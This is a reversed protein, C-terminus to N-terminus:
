DEGMIQKIEPYLVRAAEKGDIQVYINFPKQQAQGAGAAVPTTMVSSLASLSAATQAAGTQKVSVAAEVIQKVKQVHDDSLQPAASIVKETSVMVESIAQLSTPDINTTSIEKAFDVIDKLPDGFIVNSLKGLINGATLVGMAVAIAGIAGAVMYLGPAAMALETLPASMMPLFQATLAIAGAFLMAAGAASLLFTGMVALGPGIVPLFKGIVAAVVAFIGMAIALDIMAGGTASIQEPSMEKFSNALLSMGASAIFIAGGIALIPLTLNRLALGVASILPPLPGIAGTFAAFTFALSAIFTVFGKIKGMVGLLGIFSLVATKNERLSIVFDKIYEAFLKLDPALEQLITAMYQQLDTLAKAREEAEKQQENYEKFALPDGFLREALGVDIKLMRAVAQKERRHLDDFNMGQQIFQDRLIGLRDDEHAAMMTVSNLGLGLQANLLGVTEAADSFTDFLQAIKMADQTAIALGKAAKQLGMFVKRGETGYKAMEGSLSNFDEAMQSPGIGIASSVKEMEAFAEIAAPGTLGMSRTLNDITKGYVDASLGLRSYTAAQDELLMQMDESLHYFDSMSSFLGGQIEAAEGYSVALANNRNALQEVGQGLTSMGGTLRGVDNQATDLATALEMLQGAITTVPASFYSGFDIGTFTTALSNLDGMMSTLNAMAEAQKELEKTRKEQQKNNEEQKDKIEDLLRKQGSLAINQDRILDKIKQQEDRNAIIADLQEQTLEIGAEQAAKIKEYAKQQQETSLALNTEISQKQRLAALDKQRAEAQQALAKAQQELQKQIQDEAV